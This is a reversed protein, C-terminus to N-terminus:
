NILVLIQELLQGRLHERIPVLPALEQQLMFFDQSVTLNGGLIVRKGLRKLINFRAQHWLQVPGHRDGKQDQDNGNAPQRNDLRSWWKTHQLGKCIHKDTGNHDLYNCLSIKNREKMSFELYAICMWHVSVILHIFHSIWFRSISLPPSIIKGPLPMCQVTHNTNM